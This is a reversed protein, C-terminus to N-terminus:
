GLAALGAARMAAVPPERGTMLRVQEAAQEVLLEIGGVVPGGRGVWAAALASPWPAYVVDFLLGSVAAPLGRALVDTAGVPTTSIVLSAQAIAEAAGDFAAVAASVGLRATTARIESVASSRRVFVTPSADGLDRLAALASAATAGGGLVCASTVSTVGAARLAAVMGAVDTNAGWWEGPVGGFLVTNAAGVDAVLRDTRTLLPLVARKLPM